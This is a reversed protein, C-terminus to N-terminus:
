VNFRALSNSEVIIEVLLKHFIDDKQVDPMPKTSSIKSETTVLVFFFDFDYINEIHM